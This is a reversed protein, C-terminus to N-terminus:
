SKSFKSLAWESALSSATKRCLSALDRAQSVTLFWFPRAAKFCPFNVKDSFKMKTYHQTCVLTCLNKNISGDYMLVYRSMIAVRSRTMVVWHRWWRQIKLLCVAFRRMYMKVAYEDKKTKLVSVLVRVGWRRKVFKKWIRVLLILICIAGMFKRNGVKKRRRIRLGQRARWFNQIIGPFQLNSKIRKRRRFKEFLLGLAGGAALEVMWLARRFLCFHAYEPYCNTALIELRLNNLRKKVFEQHILDSIIESRHLKALTQRGRQDAAQADIKKLRQTRRFDRLVTKRM